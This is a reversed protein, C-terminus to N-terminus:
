IRQRCVHHERAVAATRFAKGAVNFAAHAKALGQGRIRAHFFHQCFQPLASRAHPPHNNGIGSPANQVGLGCLIGGAGCDGRRLRGM